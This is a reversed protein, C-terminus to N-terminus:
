RTRTKILDSIVFFCDLLVLKGSDVAVNRPSIEFGIDSGCNSCADLAEIMVEQLSEDEIKSFENYYHSYSDFKNDGTFTKIGRLTKYIEYQDAELHSKLGRTRPYHKMKYDYPDLGSFDIVPFLESDPFWGHVMCEKIVDNTVLYVLSDQDNLYAKTFTGKGILKM